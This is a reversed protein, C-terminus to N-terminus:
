PRCIILISLSPRAPATRMGTRAQEAPMDARRERRAGHCLRRRRPAVTARRGDVYVDYAAATLILLALAKRRKWPGALLVLVLLPWLRRAAVARLTIFVVRASAPRTRREFGGVAGALDAALIIAACPALGFRGRPRQGRPGRPGAPVGPTVSAWATRSLEAHAGGTKTAHLPAPHPRRRAHTSSSTM